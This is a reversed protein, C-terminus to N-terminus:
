EYELQPHWDQGRGEPTLDFVNWVPWLMDVHRPEQNAESAIYLLETNYSHYIENESKKFVNTAPLQDGNGTEAHYDKNYACQASSLLRLNNWGRSQAWQQIRAAPSKAIVVFNIRERVHLASGNLCDLISTCSPCPEEMDPGYMFSYVVLSNKGKTFLQSFQVQRIETGVTAEELLYNEKLAGGNPLARRQASILEIHRRLKIEARLLDNRADRYDASENPFHIETM